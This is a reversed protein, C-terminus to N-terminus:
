MAAGRWAGSSSGAQGNDNAPFMPGPVNLGARPLNQVHSPVLFPGAELVLVRLGNAAGDRYVKEACYGGFMGAGIVIVDFPRGGNNIAEDWTNCVFRSLADIGLSTRQVDPSPQIPRGSDSLYNLPM